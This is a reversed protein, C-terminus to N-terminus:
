QGPAVCIGAGDFSFDGAINVTLNSQVMGGCPSIEGPPPVLFNIQYLGVYGPALGAFQPTSYITLVNNLPYVPKAPLANPLFDFGLLFTEQAPAPLTVTQGTTAAPNTAGLGVAYAVLEENGQAPSQASVMSGDAHTVLPACPLGNTPANGSGSVVTDCTTLIHIHDPLPTLPFSATVAGNQTIAVSTAVALNNCVMGACPTQMEYPIQVTVNLFPPCGVPNSPCNFIPGVSLVPVLYAQGQQLTVSMQAPGPNIVFLTIVQGPAVIAPATYLYGASTIVTSATQPFIPLACAVCLLIVIVAQKM